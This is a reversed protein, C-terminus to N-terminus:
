GNGKEGIAADGTTSIVADILKTVNEVEMEDGYMPCIEVVRIKRGHGPGPIVTGLARQFTRWRKADRSDAQLAATQVPAQAAAYLPWEKWKEAGQRIYFTLMEVVRRTAKRDAAHADADQPYMEGRRAAEDDVAQIAKLVDSAAVPQQSPPEQVPQAARLEKVKAAHQAMILAKDAAAIAKETRQTTRYVIRMAETFGHGKLQEAFQDLQEIRKGMLCTCYGATEQSIGTDLCSQCDHLEPDFGHAIFSEEQNDM